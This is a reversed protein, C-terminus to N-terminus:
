QGNGGDAPAQQAAQAPAVNILTVDFVLAANAPISSGQPPNAGYALEAPIVLRRVGGVKMGPIGQKWGDIVDTVNFTAPQGSDKSSEFISGTAAVAGTYDVTVASDITAEAGEGVQTDIVQLESVTEVPEFNELPKGQSAGAQQPQATAAAQEQAGKKRSQQMDYIVFASFACASILFVAAMTFAFIRQPLSISSKM